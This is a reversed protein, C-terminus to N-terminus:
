WVDWIATLRFPGTDLTAGGSPRVELVFDVDKNGAPTSSSDRVSWELAGALLDIWTDEAAAEVYFGFGTNWVVDVIRFETTTKAAGNPIVWDTGADIQSYGAGQRKDITGDTNIRIGATKTGLGVIQSVHEGSITIVPAPAGAVSMIQSGLLLGM